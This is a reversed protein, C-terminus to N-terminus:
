LAARIRAAIVSRDGGAIADTWPQVLSDDDSRPVLHLHFHFVDQWGAPENAQFLTMGGFDLCARLARAVRTAAGMVAGADVEDIDFIGRAHGRPVVLVHGEAAPNADMFAVTRDDEYVIDAPETGAVIACFVCDDVM